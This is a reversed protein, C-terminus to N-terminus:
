SEVVLDLGALYIHGDYNKNQITLLSISESFQLNRVINIMIM